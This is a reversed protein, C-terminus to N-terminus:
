GVVFSPIPKNMGDEEISVKVKDRKDGTVRLLDGVTRQGQASIRVANTRDLLLPVRTGGPGPLTAQDLADMSRANFAPWLDTEFSGRSALVESSLRLLRIWTGCNYYYGGRPFRLARALHTHGTITFDVGEGVRAQM